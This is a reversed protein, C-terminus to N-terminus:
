SFLAIMTFPTGFFRIRFYVLADPLIEPPTQVAILIARSFCLGVACILLGVATGTVVATHTSQRIQAENKEGLFQACVVTVGLSLGAFLNYILNFPQNTVGAAAMALDGVYRGLVVKDAIGYLVNILASFMLPLSFLLLQKVIPGKTLDIARKKNM